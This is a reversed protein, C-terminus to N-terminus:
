GNEPETIHKKHQSVISGSRWSPSNTIWFAANWLMALAKIAPPRAAHMSRACFSQRFTEFSCAPNVYYIAPNRTKAPDRGVLATRGSHRPPKFQSHHVSECQQERSEGRESLRRQREIYRRHLPLRPVGVASATQTHEDAAVCEIRFVTREVIEHRPRVIKAVPM